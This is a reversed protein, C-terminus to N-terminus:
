RKRGLLSRVASLDKMNEEQQKKMSSEISKLQKMAANYRKKDNVLKEYGMLTYADSRAQWSKDLSFVGVGGSSSKGSKKISKKAM